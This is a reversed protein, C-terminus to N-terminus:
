RESLCSVISMFNPSSLKGLSIDNPDVYKGFAVKNGFYQSARKWSVEQNKRYEPGVSINNPPFERDVFENTEKQLVNSRLCEDPRVVDVYFYRNANKTDFDFNEAIKKLKRIYAPRNFQNRKLGLKSETELLYPESRRENYLSAGTISSNKPSTLDTTKLETKKDHSSKFQSNTDISSVVIDKTNRGFKQQKQHM